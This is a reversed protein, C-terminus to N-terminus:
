TEVHQCDTISMPVIRHYEEWEAPCIRSDYWHAIYENQTNIFMYREHINEEPMEAFLIKRSVWLGGQLTSIHLRLGNAMAAPIPWPFRIISNSLQNWASYQQNFVPFGTEDRLIVSFQVPTKNQTSLKLGIWWASPHLGSLSEIWEGSEPIEGYIIKHGLEPSPIALNMAILDEIRM